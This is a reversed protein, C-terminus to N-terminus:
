INHWFVDSQYLNGGSSLIISTTSLSIIAAPPVPKNLHNSNAVKEAAQLDKDAQVQTAKHKAENLQANFVANDTPLQSSYSKISNM